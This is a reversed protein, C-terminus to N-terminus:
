YLPIPSKSVDSVEDVTLYVAIKEAWENFENMFLMNKENRAGYILSVDGFFERQTLVKQIVPRLPALGM